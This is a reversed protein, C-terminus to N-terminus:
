GLKQGDAEELLTVVDERTSAQRLFRRFQDGQLHTFIKEMAQLHQDPKEKPSVLLIVSFVPARDLARFDIGTPSVGIAAIINEVRDSKVHPVAVGKGIGTTAQKERDLVRKVLEDRAEAPAAGAAVLADILEGVAADRETARMEPLIADTVVFDMLKM